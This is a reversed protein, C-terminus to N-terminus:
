IRTAAAAAIAANEDLHRFPPWTLWEGSIRHYVIYDCGPNDSGRTM